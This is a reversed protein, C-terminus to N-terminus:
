LEKTARDRAGPTWGDVGFGHDQSWYKQILYAAQADEDLAARDGIKGVWIRILQGSIDHRKSLTCICAIVARRGTRKFAPSHSRHKTM